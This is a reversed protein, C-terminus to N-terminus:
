VYVRILQRIVKDGIAAVESEKEEPSYFTSAKSYYRIHIMKIPYWSM